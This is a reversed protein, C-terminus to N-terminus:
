LPSLSLIIDFHHSRIATFVDIILYDVIFSGVSPPNIHQFAPFSQRTATSPVVPTIGLFEAKNITSKSFLLNGVPYAMRRYIEQRSWISERGFRLPWYKGIDGTPQRGFIGRRWDEPSRLSRDNEHCYQPWRVLIYLRRVARVVRLNQLSFFPIVIHYASPW